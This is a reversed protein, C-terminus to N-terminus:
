YASLLNVYGAGLRSHCVEKIILNSAPPFKMCAKLRVGGSPGAGVVGSDASVVKEAGRM